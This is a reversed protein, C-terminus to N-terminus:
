DNGEGFFIGAEKRANEMLKMTNLTKELLEYTKETEKNEIMKDINRFM